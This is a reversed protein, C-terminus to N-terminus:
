NLMISFYIQNDNLITLKNVLNTHLTPSYSRALLQLCNLIYPTSIPVHNCYLPWNFRWASRATIYVHVSSCRVICHCHYRLPPKKIPLRTDLVTLMICRLSARIGEFCHLLFTTTNCSTSKIQCCWWNCVLVIPFLEYNTASRIDVKIWWSWFRFCIWM